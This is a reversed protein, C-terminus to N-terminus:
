PLPPGVKIRYFEEPATAGNTDTWRFSNAPFNTIFLTNWNVLNTSAEVAYDPGVISNTVFMTFLGNSLGFLPVTPLTLPNVTITFSQIASLSPSGNVGVMLQVPNTTNAYTVPPRWSFAANTNNVQTLTAGSPAAPLSFGLTPAPSNTDTASANIAVTQGVNVTQNSIPALTPATIVPLFGATVDEFVSTNLESNNHACVALGVYAANSMTIIAASLLTWTKGDTGWYGLFFNNTRTLRVWKPAAGTISTASTIGGTNTRSLFELGAAPEVDVLAHTSNAALSERIMVAAKANNATDEVGAVLARIDCTVCNTVYVYAFQFADATGWIDTGSGLITFQGGCYMVSGPFAVSGIDTHLWPSPPAGGPMAVSVETSPLSEYGANTATVVYFYTQCSEVGSDTYNTSTIASAITTYPGGTVTSRKVNYDVGPLANWNLVAQGNTETAALGTVFLAPMASVETSNASVGNGNATVVYYYTTLSTVDNDAYGLNVGGINGAILTYPGGSNTARWLNYTTAGPVIDWSVAVQANGGVAAVGTPAAPPPLTAAETITM